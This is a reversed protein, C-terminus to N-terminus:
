RYNRKYIANRKNRYKEIEKEKKYIKHTESKKNLIANIENKKTPYEIMYVWFGISADEDYNICRRKSTYKLDALVTDKCYVIVQDLNLDSNKELKQMNKLCIINSQQFKICSDTIARYKLKQWLGTKRSKSLIHVSLLGDNLHSTHHNHGHLQQPCQGVYISNGYVDNILHYPVKKIEAEYINYLRRCTCLLNAIRSLTIYKLLCLLIDVPFDELGM